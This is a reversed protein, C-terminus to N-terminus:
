SLSRKKYIDLLYELRITSINLKNLLIEKQRSKTKIILYDKSIAPTAYNPKTIIKHEIIDTWNIQENNQFCLGKKSINFLFSQDDLKKYEQYIKRNRYIIFLILVTGFIEVENLIM